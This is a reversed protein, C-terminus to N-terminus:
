KAMYTLLGAAGVGFVMVVFMFGGIGLVLRTIVDSSQRTSGSERSCQETSLASEGAVVFPQRGARMNISIAAQAGSFANQSSQIAQMM